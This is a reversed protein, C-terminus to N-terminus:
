PRGRRRGPAGCTTAAPGGGDCQQAVQARAALVAAPDECLALGTAASGLVVAVAMSGFAGARRTSTM